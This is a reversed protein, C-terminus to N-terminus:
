SMEVFLHLAQDLMQCHVVRLVNSELFLRFVLLFFFFIIVVLKLLDVDRLVEFLLVDQHAFLLPNRQHNGIELQHLLGFHHYEDARDILDFIEIVQEIVHFISIGISDHSLLLNLGPFDVLDM